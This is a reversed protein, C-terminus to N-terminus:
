SRRHNTRVGVLARLVLRGSTWGFFLNLVLVWWHAHTGRKFAVITPYFFAWLGLAAFAILSWTWPNTMAHPEM